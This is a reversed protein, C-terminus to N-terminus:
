MMDTEAYRPGAFCVDFICGDRLYSSKADAAEKACIDMARRYLEESKDKCDSLSHKPAPEVPTMHQFMLESKRVTMRGRARISQEDDNAPSGDFDGCAGDQGGRPTMTIRVNIHNAWRFVQITVGDPLHMHVIHKELTSQATDVIAGEDNYSLTAIGPLTYSSPFATLVAHGDVFIGGREMPEVVIKHGKLFDGGVSVAHTAALGNTFPTALFRGQISVDKSNVLWFEGQEFVSASGHDFTDIHPDGWLLCSGAKGTLTMTEITPSTTSTLVPLLLAILLGIAVLAGVCIGVWIFPSSKPPQVQDFEGAGAGVYRYTTEVTYAGRGAGVFAM